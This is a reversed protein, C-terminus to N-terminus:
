ALMKQLKKEPKLVPIPAATSLTAEANEKVYSGPAPEIIKYKQNGAKAPAAIEKGSVKILKAVWPTWWSGEFSKATKKWEELGNGLKGDLFYGYKNKYPPNIAGMNHGSGGLIFEVPGTVLETITFVTKAPSIVDETFGIAFVPVNIKSIDIPTNCIRLANKRSLKNEFIMNRMYYKYM